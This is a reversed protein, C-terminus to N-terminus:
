SLAPNFVHAFLYVIVGTVSVYLWIPWAWRVIRRHQQVSNTLGRYVAFLALPVVVMSLLIHSALILLYVVKLVGQGGYKVDGHAAHYVVYSALFFVSLVLAAIMVGRHAKLMGRRVFLLGVLLLISVASNIGANMAPLFGVDGVLARGNVDWFLLTAVLSPVVISLGAIVPVFLRDNKRLM